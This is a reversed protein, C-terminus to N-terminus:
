EAHNDNGLTRMLRFPLGIVLAVIGAMFFGTIAVLYWHPDPHGLEAYGAYLTVGVCLLTAVFSALFYRKIFVHSGACVLLWIGFLLLLHISDQM